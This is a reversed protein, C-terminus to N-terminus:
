TVKINISNLYRLINHIGELEEGQNVRIFKVLKGNTKNTALWKQCYAQRGEQQAYSYYKHRTEDYEIVLLNPIYFDLKYFGDNQENPITYQKLTNIGIIKDIMEGFYIEDRSTEQIIIEKNNSLDFYEIAENIYINNRAYRCFNLAIEKTVCYNTKIKYRSLQYSNMNRIDINKFYLDNDFDYYIYYDINEKLNFKKIKHKIWDAYQKNIHLKKWLERTNIEFKETKVRAM